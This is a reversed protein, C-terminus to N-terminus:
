SALRDTPRNLAKSGILVLILGGCENAEIPEVGFGPMSTVPSFPKVERSPNCFPDDGFASVRCGTEPDAPSLSRLSYLGVPLAPRSSEASAFGDDDVAGDETRV